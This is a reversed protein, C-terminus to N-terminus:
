TKATARETPLWCLDRRCEKVLMIMTATNKYNQTYKIHNSSAKKTGPGKRECLRKNM